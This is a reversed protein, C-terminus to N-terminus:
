DRSVANRYITPLNHIRGLSDFRHDWCAIREPTDTTTSRKRRVKRVGDTLSFFWKVRPHRYRCIWWFWGCDLGLAHCAWFHFFSFSICIYTYEKEDRLSMIWWMIDRIMDCEVVSEKTRNTELSEAFWTTRWRAQGLSIGYASPSAIKFM